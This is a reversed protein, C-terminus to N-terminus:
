MRHLRGLRWGGRYGPEGLTAASRTTRQLEASHRRVREAAGFELALEHEKQGVANDYIVRGRQMRVQEPSLLTHVVAEARSERLEEQLRRVFGAAVDLRRNRDDIHEAAEHAVQQIEDAARARTVELAQGAEVRLQENRQVESQVTSLLERNSHVQERLAVEFMEQESIRSQLERRQTATMHVAMMMEERFRGM